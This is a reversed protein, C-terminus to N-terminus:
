NVTVTGANNGDSYDFSGSTAFTYEFYEGRDLIPPETGALTLQLPASTNNTFRVTEGKKVSLANPAFGSATYSVLYQFGKQASVYDEPKPPPVYLEAPQQEVVPAPQQFLKRNFVLGSVVLAAVLLGLWLLYRHTSHTEPM